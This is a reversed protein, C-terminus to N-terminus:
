KMVANFEQRTIVGDHNQDLMNFTAGAPLMGTPSTYMQPSAPYTMQPQYTVPAHQVMPEQYPMSSPSIQYNVAPSSTTIQAPGQYSTAPLATVSGGYSMTPKAPMVTASTGYTSAPRIAAPMGM